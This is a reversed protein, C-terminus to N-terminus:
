QSLGWRSGDSKASMGTPACGACYNSENPQVACRSCINKGCSTCVQDDTMGAYIFFGCACIRQLESYRRSLIHGIHDSVSRGSTEAEMRLLAATPSTLDLTFQERYLNGPM